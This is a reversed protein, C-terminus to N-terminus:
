VVHNGEQANGRTQVSKETFFNILGFLVAILTIFFTALLAYHYLDASWHSHDHGAHAFVHPAIFLLCLLSLKGLFKLM